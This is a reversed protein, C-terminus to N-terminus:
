DIRLTMVRVSRSNATTILARNGTASLWQPGALPYGRINRTAGVQAGTATDIVTVNTANPAGTFPNSTETVLLARNGDASIFLGGFWGPEGAVAVTTGLQAGTATDIVAVQVINKRVAGTVARAGDASVLPVLPVGTLTVGTGAQAGTTTDIVAWHSTGTDTVPNYTTTTSLARSADARLPLWEGAGTLTVATGATTDIVTWRTTFTNDVGTQTSILVCSGDASLPRLEAQRGTLTFTTGTRAGTSTDITAVRTTFTDPAMEETTTILARTGDASWLSSRPVGTFTGTSAVQAGSAMDIIRVETRYAGTTADRVGTTVMARTGDASLLVSSGGNFTLLDGTQNGTTTDIVAMQTISFLDTAVIVARSGATTAQIGAITPAPLTVTTGIRAGTTTDWETVQYPEGAARTYVLARSGDANLPILGGTGSLTFATGTPAGTATDITTFQTTTAGSALDRGAIIFARTGDASLQVYNLGGTGTITLPTGIQAGTATNIVAVGTTTGRFTRTVARSHDTNWITDGDGTFTVDGIVTVTHAAPASSGGNISQVRVTGDAADSVFVTGDPKVVIVHGGSPDSDIAVTSLVTYTKTDIVSVTDDGNAVYALTGDSSFAISSPSPGVSIPNTGVINPKTDILTNTAIDIVSVTGSGTNAVYLRGDGALALGSPQSAVTVANIVTYNSSNIVSVTGSATDAVYLRGDPGLALASPSSGASISQMGNINPNTDILTNTATNVVSVTGSATDAVYLRGDPGLALASPSSGASISQTGAVTPNTDILKYTDTNIVSVTGSGRNAVYLRKGDVSMALASPSSGVAIDKSFVSSNADIRQGTATNVVSVTGSGANAVFMRGDTSIVVGAPRSGVGISVRNEPWSPSVYVSVPVTTTTQDNSVAVNFTDTEDLTTVGAALRAAVTPTYTYAGTQSNLQVTGRIPNETLTYTLSGDDNAIVTGTVVGSVPDPIGIRQAPVYLASNVSAAMVSLGEPARLTQDVSASTLMEASASSEAPTQGWRSRVGALMAWLVPSDVPAGPAAAAFSSGLVMMSLVRAVMVSAAIRPAAPASLAMPIAQAAVSGTGPAAGAGMVASSVPQASVPVGFSFVPLGLPMPSPDNVASMPASDSLSSVRKSVILPRSSAGPLKPSAAVSLTSGSRLNAAGVQAGGTSMVKGARPDDTANSGLSTTGKVRKTTLTTSSSRLSMRPASSVPQRGPLNVMGPTGTGQTPAAAPASTSDAPASSGNEPEASALGSTGAVAVGVGFVVALVGVRGIYKAYVASM